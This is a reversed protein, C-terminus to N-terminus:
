RRVTSALAGGDAERTLAGCGHCLRAGHAVGFRRGACYACIKRAAMEVVPRALQAATVRCAEDLLQAKAAQRLRWWEGGIEDDLNVAVGSRECALALGALDASTRPAPLGLGEAAESLTVGEAATTGLSLSLGRRVTSALRLAAAEFDIM